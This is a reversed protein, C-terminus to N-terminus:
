KEAINEEPKEVVKYGFLIDKSVGKELNLLELALTRLLPKVRIFKFSRKFTASSCLNPTGAHLAREFHIASAVSSAAHSIFDGM